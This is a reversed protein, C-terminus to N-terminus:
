DLRFEDFSINQEFADTGVFVLLREFTESDQFGPQFGLPEGDDTLFVTTPFGTVGLNMAFEQMSIQRGNYLVKDSSEANIKVAYFYEDIASQVGDQTYTEREMQKCYGCWDTYVDILIKKDTNEAKDLADELSIWNTFANEVKGDGGSLFEGPITREIEPSSCSFLFLLSFIYLSSSKLM